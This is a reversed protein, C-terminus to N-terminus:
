LRHFAAPIAELVSLSAWIDGVPVGRFWPRCEKTLPLFRVLIRILFEGLDKETGQAGLCLEVLEM